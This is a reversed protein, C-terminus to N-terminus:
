GKSPSVGGGVGVPYNLIRKNEDQIPKTSFLNSQYDVSDNAIISLYHRSPLYRNRPVM